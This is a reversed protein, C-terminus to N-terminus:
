GKNIFGAIIDSKKHFTPSEKSYEIKVARLANLLLLITTGNHLFATQIPTLKGFAALGLIASNVGVTAYFNTHIRSLCAMGFAKADAVHQLEDRLLVIDASAKAIDAGKHMGIGVNAKLLAPADNIGDGIFTVKRGEHM